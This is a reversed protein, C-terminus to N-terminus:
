LALGTPSRPDIELAADAARQEDDLRGERNARLGEALLRALRERDTGESPASSGGEGTGRGLAVYAVAGSALALAVVAAVAWWRRGRPRHPALFPGDGRS